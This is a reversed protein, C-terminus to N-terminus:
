INELIFTQREHATFANGAYSVSTTASLTTTTVTAFDASDYTITLNTLSTTLLKTGSRRSSGSAIDAYRYVSNGNMVYGIYDYSGVIITGSTDISPLEFIVTTSGSSYTNGGFNHSVVVRDAQLAVDRVSDFLTTISTAASISVYQLLIVRNNVLYLYALAALVSTAIAIIVLLEVLTFAARAPFRTRIM